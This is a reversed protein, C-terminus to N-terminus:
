LTPILALLDTVGIDVGRQYLLTSMQGRHHTQHNFFHQVLPGFCRSQPDGSTDLYSIPHSFDSEEFERCLAMIVQDLDSRARSLVSFDNHLRVDLQTIPAADAHDAIAAYRKPHNAFRQLWLLDGVLMHNLTGLISGFYAGMDERLEDDSLAACAAYMRENMWRNYHAMLRYQATLTTM